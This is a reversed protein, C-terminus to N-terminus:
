SCTWVVRGSIKVSGADQLGSFQFSGSADPKVFLTGVGTPFAFVHTEQDDPRTDVDMQTATLGSGTYTGPGHYPWAAADTSFTHGGGVPGPNGAIEMPEPVNFMAGGTGGSAGTGGKAVDACTAVPLRDDYTGTFALGGTITVTAHLVAKKPTYSNSTGKAPLTASVLLMVIAASAGGALVKRLIALDL